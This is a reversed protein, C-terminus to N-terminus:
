CQKQVYVFNSVPCLFRASQVYLFKSVPGLLFLCLSVPSLPCADRLWCLLPPVSLAFTTSSVRGLVLLRSTSPPLLASPSRLASVGADLFGLGLRGGRSFMGLAFVLFGSVFTM